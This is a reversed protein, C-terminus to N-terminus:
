EIGKWSPAEIQIPAPKAEIVHTGAETTLARQQAVCKAAWEEDSGHDRVVMVPAVAVAVDVKAAANNPVEFQKFKAKLTYIIGAANGKGSRAMQLLELYLKHMIRKALM